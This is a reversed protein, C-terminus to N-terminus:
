RAGVTEARATDGPQEEVSDPQPISVGSARWYTLFLLTVALTAVILPPVSGLPPSWSGAFPNLSRLGSQWRAMSYALCILHIPLLLTAFMRTMSRFHEGTFAHRGLVYAGLLPLGVAGPLFYRGQNFWGIVNVFLIEAGLLPTFTAFFLALLRWRDARKGVVLGGLTLVGLTAFWVLYILRPMLTEAWGTVGVMQNAVNPWMHDVVAFRLIEKFTLGANASAAGVPQALFVWAVSALVCVGVVVSWFRVTRSGVLTKLRARSSPILIVGLIVALWMVGTFRLTVLTSASVGALVVAARNVGKRQDHVVAILATFLAIGAAIEVGSPNIAGGLHAIMPTVAVVVGTVLARHRTWRAATVVACALLAAMVAGNLLRALLIGTWNPWLGLPWSTVLYYVPNFRGARTQVRLESEDGGPERECSAAVEVKTPFCSGRYLSDPVTQIGGTPHSEAIVEGRMIGSARLVHEQEDPPGNYPAAFAWGAHLLLFGIFAPLWLRYGPM